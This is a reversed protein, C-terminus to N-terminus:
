RIRLLVLRSWSGRARIGALGLGLISWVIISSPEPVVPAQDFNLPAGLNMCNWSVYTTEGSGAQTSAWLDAFFKVSQFNFNDGVNISGINLWKPENFMNQKPWDHPPNDPASAGMGFVQLTFTKESPDAILQFYYEQTSPFVRAGSGTGVWNGNMDYGLTGGQTAYWQQKHPHNDPFGGVGYTELSIRDWPHAPIEYWQGLWSNAFTTRVVRSGDYFSLFFYYKSWDNSNARAAQSVNVFGQLAVPQGYQTLDVPNSILWRFDRKWGTGTVSLSGSGINGPWVYVPQLAAYAPFVGSGVLCLKLTIAILLAARKKM